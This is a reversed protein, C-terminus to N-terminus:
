VYIINHINVTVAMHHCEMHLIAGLNNRLLLQSIQLFSNSVLSEQMTMLTIKHVHIINAICLVIKNQGIISCYRDTHASSFVDNIHIVLIKQAMIFLFFFLFPLSIQRDDSLM